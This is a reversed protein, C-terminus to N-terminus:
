DNMRINPVDILFLGRDSFYIIKFEFEDSGCKDCYFVISVANSGYFNGTAMLFRDTISANKKCDEGCFCCFHNSDSSGKPPCENSMRSFTISAFAVPYTKVM